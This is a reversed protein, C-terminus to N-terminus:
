RSVHSHVRTKKFSHDRKLLQYSSDKRKNKLLHRVLRRYQGLRGSREWTAFYHIIIIIIFAGRRSPSKLGLAGGGHFFTTPSPFRFRQLPGQISVPTAGGALYLTTSGSTDRTGRGPHAEILSSPTPQFLSGTQKHSKEEQYHCGGARLQRMGIEVRIVPVLITQTQWESDTRLEQQLSGSKYGSIQQQLKVQSESVARPLHASAFEPLNSYFALSRSQKRGPLLPQQFVATWVSYGM